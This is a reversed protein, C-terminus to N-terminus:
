QEKRYCFVSKLFFSRFYYVYVNGRHSINEKATGLIPVIVCVAAWMKMRTPQAQPGGFFIVGPGPPCLRAEHPPACSFDGLRVPLGSSAGVSILAARQRYQTIEHFSVLSRSSIGLQRLDSSIWNELNSAWCICSACFFTQVKYNHSRSVKLLM